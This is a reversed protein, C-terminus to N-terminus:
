NCYRIARESNIIISNIKGFTFSIPVARVAIISKSSEGVNFNHLDSTLRVYVMGNDVIEKRSFRSHKERSYYEECDLTKLSNYDYVPLNLYYNLSYGDSKVFSFLIRHKKSDFTGKTLGFFDDVKEDPINPYINVVAETDLLYNEHYFKYVHRSIFLLGLIILITSLFKKM